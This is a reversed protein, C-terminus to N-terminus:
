NSAAGAVLDSSTIATSTFRTDDGLMVLPQCNPTCALTTRADGQFVTVLGARSQVVEVITDAIPNGAADLIILNTRGYGRGTLILTQPDQITVDAIGPNGVIITQAPSSIRLIRAMNVQVTIYGSPLINEAALAVPALFVVMLVGLIAALVRSAQRQLSKTWLQPFLGSHPLFKAM